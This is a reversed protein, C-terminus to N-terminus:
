SVSRASVEIGLISVDDDPGREACWRVVVDNLLEVSGEISHAKGLEIIELTQKMGLL